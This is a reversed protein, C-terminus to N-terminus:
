GSASSPHCEMTREIYSTIPIQKLVGFALYGAYLWSIGHPASGVLKASLM